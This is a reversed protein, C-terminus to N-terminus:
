RGEQHQPLAHYYALWAWLQRSSLSTLPLTIVTAREISCVRICHKLANDTRQVGFRDVRELQSSRAKALASIDVQMRWPAEIRACSELKAGDAHLKGDMLLLKGGTRKTAARQLGVASRYTSYASLQMPSDSDPIRM